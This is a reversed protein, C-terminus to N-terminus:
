FTYLDDIKNDEIMYGMNKNRLKYAKEILEDDSEPEELLSLQGKNPFYMNLLKKEIDNQNQLSGDSLINEINFGHKTLGHAVMISRHCNIPDKEACMLVIIYKKEIGNRIKRVGDSFEKSNIFLQFDLYGENSFFDINNQKAGFERAYNLYLINNEKLIPELINRSFDKHYESAFPNSRVDIICSINYKKITDLFENINFGSYGITFVTDM